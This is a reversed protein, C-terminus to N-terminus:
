YKAIQNLIEQKHQKTFDTLEYYRIRQKEMNPLVFGNKTLVSLRNIITRNTVGLDKSIDIPRVSGVVLTM